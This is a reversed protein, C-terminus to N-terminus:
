PKSAKTLSTKLEVAKTPSLLSAILDILPGAGARAAELAAIYDNQNHSTKYAVLFQQAVAASARYKDHAAVVKADLEPTTQGRVSLEAWDKMGRDVVNTVSVITQFITTCSTLLCCVALAITLKKM